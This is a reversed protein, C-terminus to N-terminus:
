KQVSWDNRQYEVTGPAPCRWGYKRAQQHVVRKNYSRRVEAVNIPANSSRSTQTMRGKEYTLTGYQPHTASLRPGNAVVVFGMDELALRLLGVDTRQEEWQLTTTTQVDYRTFCPM